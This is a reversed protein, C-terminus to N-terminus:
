LCGELWHFITVKRLRDADSATFVDTPKAATFKFAVYVNHESCYWPHQEKGIKVLDDLGAKEDVCCMQQFHVGKDRFYREVDSRTMGPTLAESYTLLAAQYTAERRVQAQRAAGGCGSSASAGLLLVLALYRRTSINVCGVRYRSEPDGDACKVAL